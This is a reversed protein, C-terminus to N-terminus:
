KARKSHTHFPLLHTDTALAQRITVEAAYITIGLYCFPQHVSSLHFVLECGTTVLPNSNSPPQIHLHTNMICKVVCVGDCMYASDHTNKQILKVATNKFFIQVFGCSKKRQEKEESHGKLWCAGWGPCDYYLLAPPM